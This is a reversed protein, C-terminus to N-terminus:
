STYVVPIRPSSSWDLFAIKSGDPSWALGMVHGKAGEPPILREGSGDTNMVYVHSYGNSVTRAVAIKSGDPSFALTRSAGDGPLRTVTGDATDVLYIPSPDRARFGHNIGGYPETYAIRTGDPSWDLEASFGIGHSPGPPLDVLRASNSGDRDMVYIGPVDNFLRFAIRTGDPSWRVIPGVRTGNRPDFPMSGSRGLGRVDRGPVSVLTTPEGGDVPVTRITIDHATGDRQYDAQVYAILGRAATPTPRRAGSGLLAGILATTLLGALLVAPLLRRPAGLGSWWARRQPLREVATLFDAVM